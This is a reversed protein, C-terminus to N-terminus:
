SPAGISAAPLAKLRYVACPSLKEKEDIKEMVQLSPSTAALVTGNSADLNSMTQSFTSDKSWCAIMGEEAARRSLMSACSGCTDGAVDMPDQASVTSSLTSSIHVPLQKTYEHRLVIGKVSTHSDKPETYPPACMM